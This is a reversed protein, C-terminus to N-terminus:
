ERRDMRNKEGDEKIGRPGPRCMMTGMRGRMMFFCLVMMVIMIVPSIWWFGYGSCACPFM